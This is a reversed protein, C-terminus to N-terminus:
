PPYTDELVPLLFCLCSDNNVKKFQTKKEDIEAVSGIGNGNPSGAPVNRRRLDAGPVAAGSTAGKDSPM